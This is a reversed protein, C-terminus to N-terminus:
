DPSDTATLQMWVSSPVPRAACDIDGQDELDSLANSLRDRTLNSASRIETLQGTLSEVAEQSVLAQEQRLADARSEAALVADLTAQTAQQASVAANATCNATIADIESRAASLRATQVACIAVLLAIWTAPHKLLRLFGIM